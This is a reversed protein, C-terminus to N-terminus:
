LVILEGSSLLTHLCLDFTFNHSSVWVPDGPHSWRILYIHTLYLGWFSWCSTSWSHLCCGTECTHHTLSNFWWRDWYELLELFPLFFLLINFNYLFLLNEWAYFICRSSQTLFHFWFMLWECRLLDLLMNTFSLSIELFLHIITIWILTSELDWVKHNRLLVSFLLILIKGQGQIWPMEWYVRSCLAYESGIFWAYLLGNISIFYPLEM